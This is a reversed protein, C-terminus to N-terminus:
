RPPQAGDRCDLRFVQTDADASRDAPGGTLPFITNCTAASYPAGHATGGPLNVVLQVLAAVVLAAILAWAVLSGSAAPPAPRASGGRIRM